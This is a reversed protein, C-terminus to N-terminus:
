TNTILYLLRKESYGNVIYTQQISAPKWVYVSEILYEAGLDVEVWAGISSDSYSSAVPKQYALGDNVATINASGATSAIVTKGLALNEGTEASIAVIQAVQLPTTSSSIRVFRIYQSTISAPQSISSATRFSGFIDTNSKSQTTKQCFDIVIPPAISIQQPLGAVNVSKLVTTNATNYL